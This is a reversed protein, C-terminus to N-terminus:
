YSLTYNGGFIAYIKPPNKNTRRVQLNNTKSLKVYIIPVNGDTKHLFTYIQLMM